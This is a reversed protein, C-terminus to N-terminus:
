SHKRIVKLIIFLLGVIIETAGLSVFVLHYGWKERTADALAGFGPMGFLVALGRCTQGIGLGHHNRKKGVIIVTVLTFCVIFIGRTVGFVLSFVVYMWFSDYFICCIISIGSIVGTLILINLNTDIESTLHWILLRCLSNAAGIMTLTIDAKQESFGLSHVHNPLITPVVLHPLTMLASSIVVLTFQKCCFLDLGTANVLFALGKKLTSIKHKTANNNQNSPNEEM